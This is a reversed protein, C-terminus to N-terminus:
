SKNVAKMLCCELATFPNKELSAGIEASKNTNDLYRENLEILLKTPKM